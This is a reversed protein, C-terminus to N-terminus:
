PRRRIKMSPTLTNATPDNRPPKAWFSTMSSPERPRWPTPAAIADGVASASIVVV